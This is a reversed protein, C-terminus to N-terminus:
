PMDQYAPDDYIAGTGYSFATQRDLKKCWVVMARFYKDDDFRAIFVDTGPQLGIDSEFYIGDESCNFLQAKFINKLHFHSFKIPESLHYRESIRRESPATM